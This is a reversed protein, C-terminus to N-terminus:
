KSDDYEYYYELERKLREDIKAMIEPELVISYYLDFLLDKAQKLDTLEDLLADTAEYKEKM